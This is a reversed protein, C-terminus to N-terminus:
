RPKYSRMPMVLLRVSVSALSPTRAKLSRREGWHTCGSNRTSPRKHIPSAWCRSDASRAPRGRLLVAIDIRAVRDAVEKVAAMSANDGSLYVTPM